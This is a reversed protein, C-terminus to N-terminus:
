SRLYDRKVLDKPTDVDLEAAKIPICTVDKKNQILLKKAGKDGELKNLLYYFRPPFIVPVGPANQYFAAVISSGDFVRLLKEFDRQKLDIQDALTIMIGDYDERNSLYKCGASISTGIGRQWHANFITKKQNSLAELITQYHAGLVIYFDDGFLPEIIDIRNQLLTQGNLCALQKIGGFRKGEGAALLLCAIRM